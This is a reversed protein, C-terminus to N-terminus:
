FIRFKKWFGRKDPNELGEQLKKSMAPSNRLIYDAERLVLEEYEARLHEHGYSDIATRM